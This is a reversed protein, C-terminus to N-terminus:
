TGKETPDRPSRGQQTTAFVFERAGKVRLPFVVNRLGGIHAEAGVKRCRSCQTLVLWSPLRADPLLAIDKQRYDHRGLACLLWGYANRPSMM